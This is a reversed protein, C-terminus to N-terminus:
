AAMELEFAPALGLIHRGWQDACAASMGPFFTSRKQSRLPGPPARHVMSWAMHEPTGKAPPILRETPVL